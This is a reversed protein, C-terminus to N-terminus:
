FVGQKKAGRMAIFQRIDKDTWRLIGGATIPEPLAGKKALNRVHQISCKLIVAVDRSDLLTPMAVRALTRRRDKPSLNRLGITPDDLYSAEISNLQSRTM